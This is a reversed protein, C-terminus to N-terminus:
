NNYNAAADFNSQSVSTFSIPDDCADGFNIVGDERLSPATSFTAVPYSDLEAKLSYQQNKLDVLAVDSSSATFQRTGQNYSLPDGTVPAGNYLATLTFDGCLGHVRPTTVFTVPTVAAYTVPGKEPVYELTPLSTPGQFQVFSTDLCPNNFSVDFQATAQTPSNAPSTWPTESEATVVVTAKEGTNAPV